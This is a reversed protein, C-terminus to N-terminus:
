EVFHLAPFLIGSFFLKNFFGFFYHLFGARGHGALIFFGRIRYKGFRYINSSIKRLQLAGYPLPASKARQPRVLRVQRVHRVHRVRPLVYWAASASMFVILSRSDTITRKLGYKDTDTRQVVDSWSASQVHALGSTPRTPRAAICVM